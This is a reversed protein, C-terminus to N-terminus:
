NRKELSFNKCSLFKSPYENVSIKKRSIKKRAIVKRGMFNCQGLNFSMCVVHFQKVMVLDMKIGDTALGLDALQGRLEAVKLKNLASKTPTDSMKM